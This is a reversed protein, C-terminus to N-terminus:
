LVYGLGLSFALLRTNSNLEYDGAANVPQGKDYNFRWYNVNILFHWMKAFQLDSGLSAMLYTRSGLKSDFLVTNPLVFTNWTHVQANFTQGVNSDASLVWKALPAWQLLAGVGAWNHHYTEPYAISRFWRHYGATGYPTIAMNAILFFQYGLRGSLDTMTIPTTATLHQHTFVDSGEYQVNGLAESLSVLGYLQQWTKSLSFTLQPVQGTERDAYGPKGSDIEGYDQFLLGASISAENNAAQLSARHDFTTLPSVSNQDLAYGLGLSYQWTRNQQAPVTLQYHNTKGSGLTAHTYQVGALLHMASSLQYDSNLALQMGNQRALTTQQYPFNGAFPITAYTWAHYNNFVQLDAGLVWHPSAAWQGLLGIGAQLSQTVQTIGNVRQGLLGQGGTDLQWHQFGWLLYPTLALQARPYFSYGFRATLQQVYSTAKSLNLSPQDYTLSANTASLAVGTYFRSFTKSVEFSLGYLAGHLPYLAYNPSASYNLNQEQSLFRLRMENNAKVITANEAYVFGSFLSLLSIMLVNKKM